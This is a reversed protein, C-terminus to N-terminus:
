RASQLAEIEARRFGHPYQSLYASAARQMADHNGARQLSLVRLYAADEARSDRPHAAVFARFLAAARASDGRDLAAMAARFEASVDAEVSPTPGGVPRVGSPELAPIAEAATASVSPTPAPPVSWADGAALALAPKGRLRLVVSGELVSVRTTRGQDASVVFATGIDELEGDPLILLLRPPSSGTHDVKISLAGSELVITERQAEARRSWRADGDARIVVARSTAPASTVAPAKSSSSVRLALALAVLALSAAAVGLWLRAYSTARVPVLRADFAALLRTRERRVHLEDGDPEPSPARLADALSQLSEFERKCHPCLSLHARFHAAAAGGLRGDRLAEVEFLRPCATKM